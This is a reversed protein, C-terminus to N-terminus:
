AQKRALRQKLQTRCDGLNGLYVVIAFALGGVAASLMLSLLGPEMGRIPWVAAVMAATALITTAVDRLSPTILVERMALATAVLLAAGYSFAQARAFDQITASPGLTWTLLANIALAVLGAIVVPWTKQSLQFVPTIAFQILAFCVLGPLLITTIAAYSGRFAEPVLAAEFGPLVLWYGTAVAAIAALVMGMNSALQRKAESLGSEDEAKLAIQFLIIDLASGVTQVVRIAIDYSLSFQGSSAFGLQNAIAARNWLPIIYYILTALIIPFGYLFFGRAKSWDPKMIKVDPDLLRKRGTMLTAIVTIVFGLAVMVPSQFYWAGGVMLILSLVNKLIVLLSYSKEEFRARVLATHYDFLGNCISMAPALAALGLMLGFDKDLWISVGGTIAIGFSSLVFLADLTGRVDPAERRTRESYFRTAALRIWDLFLTNLVVALAAAIAYQGFGQPGLFRAILLGLAFNFASNILFTTVVLM